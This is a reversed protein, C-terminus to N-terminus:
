RRQKGKRIRKTKKKRKKTKTWPRMRKKPFKAVIKAVWDDEHMILSILMVIGVSGLALTSFSAIKLREGTGYAWDQLKDTTQNIRQMWSRSDLYLKNPETNNAEAMWSRQRPKPNAILFIGPSSIFVFTLVTM